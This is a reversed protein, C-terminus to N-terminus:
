VGGSFGGDTSRLIYWTMQGNARRIVAQDTKNDGDYDRGVPEDGTIGFPIGVFTNNSSNLRYWYGTSDRWVSIDGRNDGDFDGPAMFDDNAIGFQQFIFGGGSKAVYWFTNSPRFVMFDAKQDLDTDMANRLKIQASASVVLLLAFAFVVFFKGSLTLFNRM